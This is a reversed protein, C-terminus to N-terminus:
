LRPETVPSSDIAATPKRTVQRPCLYSLVARRATHTMSFLPAAVFAIMTHEYKKTQLYANSGEIIIESGIKIGERLKAMVIPGTDHVYGASINGM